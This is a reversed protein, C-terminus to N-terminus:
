NPFDGVKLTATITGDSLVNLVQFNLEALIITAMEDMTSRISERAQEDLEDPDAADILIDAITTVVKLHTDFHEDTASLDLSPENTM